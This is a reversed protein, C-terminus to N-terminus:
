GQRAAALRNVFVLTRGPYRLLFYYLYVDKEAVGCFIRRETLTPVVVEPATLDIVMPGPERFPLRQMLRELM